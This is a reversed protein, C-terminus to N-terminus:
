GKSSQARPKQTKTAMVALSHLCPSFGHSHQYEMVLKGLHPLQRRCTFVCAAGKVRLADKMLRTWISIHWAPVGIWAAAATASWDEPFTDLVSKQDPWFAALNRAVVTNLAPDACAFGAVFSRVAVGPRM